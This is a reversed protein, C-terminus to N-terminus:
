KIEETIDKAVDVVNEEVTVDAVNADVPIIAPEIQDTSKFSGPIPVNDPLALKVADRVTV